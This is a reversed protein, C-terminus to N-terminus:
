KLSYPPARLLYSYYIPKLFGVISYSSLIDKHNQEVFVFPYSSINISLAKKNFSNALLQCISCELSIFNRDTSFILKDDDPCPKQLLICNEHNSHSHIYFSPTTLFIFSFVLGSIFFKFIISYIVFM